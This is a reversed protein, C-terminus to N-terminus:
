HSPNARGFTPHADAMTTDIGSLERHLQMGDRRNEVVGADAEVAGPNAPEIVQFFEADGGRGDTM